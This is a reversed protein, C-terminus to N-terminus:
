IAKVYDAFTRIVEAQAEERWQFGFITEIGDKLEHLTL